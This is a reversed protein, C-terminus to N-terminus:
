IATFGGDVVVCSGTMFKADDSAIFVATKAIEKPDAMRQMPIRKMFEKDLSDMMPTATAGPCLANVRIQDLAYASAMSKTLQIIAGKTASYAQLGDAGVIGATSAINIINGCGNKRMVPILHKCFLYPAKVNVQFIKDWAEEELTEVTGPTAIGANNVLIDVKPYEELLKPLSVNIAENDCLDISYFTCKGGMEECLAKGRIEDRGVIVVTAGENMFEKAIAQGIGLTGGTIIAVKNELKM